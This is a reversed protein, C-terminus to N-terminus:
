PKPHAVFGFRQPVQEGAIREVGIRQGHHCLVMAGNGDELWRVLAEDSVADGDLELAALVQAMDRDDLQAVVEGSQVILRGDETMFAREPAALAQGTHLM